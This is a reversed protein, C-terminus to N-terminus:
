VESELVAPLAAHDHRQNASAGPQRDNRQRHLIRVAVLLGAAGQHEAGLRVAAHREEQVLPDAQVQAGAHAVRRLLRVLEVGVIVG